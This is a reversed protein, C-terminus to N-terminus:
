QYMGRLKWGYRSRIQQRFEDNRVRCVVEAQLETRASEIFGSKHFEITHTCRGEGGLVEALTRVNYFKLRELTPRLSDCQTQLVFVPGRREVIRTRATPDRLEVGDALVVFPKRWVSDIAVLGNPLAGKQPDAFHALVPLSINRLWVFQQVSDFDSVSQAGEAIYNRLWDLMEGEVKAVDWYPSYTLTFERNLPVVAAVFDPFQLPMQDRPTYRLTNGGSSFSYEMSDIIVQVSVMGERPSEIAEYSLYYTVTRTYDLTSSDSSWVRHVTTTDTYVYSFLRGVPFRLAFAVMEKEKPAATPKEGRVPEQALLAVVGVAWVLVLRYM